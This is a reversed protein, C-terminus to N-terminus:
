HFDYSLIESIDETSGSIVNIKIINLNQKYNKFM